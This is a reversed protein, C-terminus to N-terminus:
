SLKQEERYCRFIRVLMGNEVADDETVSDELAKKDRRKNELYMYLYLSVISLLKVVYGVLM